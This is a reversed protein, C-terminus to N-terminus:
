GAAMIFINYINQLLLTLHSKPQTMSHSILYHWVTQLAYHLAVPFILLELLEESVDFLRFDSLPKENAM